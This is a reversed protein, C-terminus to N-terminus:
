FKLFNKFRKLPLGKGSITNYLIYLLLIYIINHIHSVSWEEGRIMELFM